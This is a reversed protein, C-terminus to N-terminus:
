SILKGKRYALNILIVVILSFILMGWVSLPLLYTSLLNLYSQDEFPIICIGVILLFIFGLAMVRKRKRQINFIDILLYMMLSIRLFAGCFWQYISLFDIHEIYRGITVLRWEEYVPFRLKAAEDPGFEVIADILSGITLGMIVLVIFGLSRYSISSRIHHQLFLILIVEIFGAAVYLTGNWVPQIGHFLSPELYSYDKHPINAVMVFFSLLIVFPFLVGATNALSHIGLFANITCILVLVFTLMFIPTNTSFTTQIWHVTDKVTVVCMVFLYASAIITLFHGVIPPYAQKLWEFLHQNRIKIIGTYLLAIWAFSCACALLVSIWADQKAADLLIPIIIVDNSLGTSLIIILATQLLSISAKM